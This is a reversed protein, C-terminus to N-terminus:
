LECMRLWAATLAIRVARERVLDRDGELRRGFSRSEIEKGVRSAEAFWVTGVPDKETGGDPGAIGTVAVALSTGYQELAGRAMNEACEGSVAGYHDLLAPEVALVRKKAEDSYTVASGAFVASSGPLQTLAAGMLGGTCSEACSLTLGKERGTALIAEPLSACGEPLVSGTFRERMTRVASEVLPAEGRIVFEVLAFSPLVSIHLSEDAIIEPVRKVALSEPIGIVAVSKWTRVLERKEQSLFPTLEQGVMAKFEFPVGPFCWVRTGSKEFYIGLASGAPNYVGRAEIPLLGQISRSGEIVEKLSTGEFRAVVRDYLADDVSLGCKLYEALAYRTKDDHTPGLGGSFVLLDTKGMWRELTDVVPSLDDPVVEIRLVKWGADHLLWALWACNGERRVGSLLEDGIAILVATKAIGKGCDEM